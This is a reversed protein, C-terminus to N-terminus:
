HTKKTSWKKLNIHPMTQSFGLFNEVKSQKKNKKTKEENRVMDSTMWLWTAKRKNYKEDGGIDILAM